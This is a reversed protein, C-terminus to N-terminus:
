PVTTRKLILQALTTTGGGGGGVSAKLAIVGVHYAASGNDTTFTAAVSGASAQIKYEGRFGDNGSATDPAETFGTGQTTTSSFGDDLTWGFIYDGDATTTVSGSSVADTGTGPLNQFRLASVDLPDSTPVGSVEHMCSFSNAAGSLTATVTTSGGSCNYGYALASRRASGTTPNHLIVWTAGLGTISNLTVTTSYWAIAFCVASGAAVNVDFSTAHTANASVFEAKAQVHAVAM